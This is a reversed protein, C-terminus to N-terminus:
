KRIFEAAAEITLGLATVINLSCPSIFYFQIVIMLCTRLADNQLHFLLHM